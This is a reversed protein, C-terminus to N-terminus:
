VVSKRDGEPTFYRRKSPTGEWDYWEVNKTNDPNYGKKAPDYWNWLDPREDWKIHDDFNFHIAVNTRKAMEFFLKIVQAIKSEDSVFIPFSMGLGLQRTKGDGATGLKAAFASISEGLGDPTTPIAGPLPPWFILYEIDNADNASCTGDRPIARSSSAAAASQPLDTMQAARGAERSPASSFSAIAASQPRDAPGFFGLLALLIAVFCFGVVTLLIALFTRM